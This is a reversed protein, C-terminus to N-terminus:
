DEGKGCGLGPAVATGWLKHIHAHTLDLSTYVSKKNLVGVAKGYM